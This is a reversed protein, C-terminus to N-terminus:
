LPLIFNKFHQLYRVVKWGFIKSLRLATGGNYGVYNFGPALAKAKQEAQKSLNKYAPYFNFANDWFLRSLALRALPDNTKALLHNAKLQTAQLIKKCSEYTKQASWTNVNKFKRYYSAAKPAYKIGNSVLVIRCFFEGDDDVTLEENWIGAKDIIELPCLWAHMGIMGGYGPGILGGGYLKILFDASDDSGETYWEEVIPRTYPYEGDFFHITACLGIYGPNNVLFNMQEEIKNASILDDADLFQIYDGSAEALGKNRAASAGKKTQSFVKVADSEFKKAITLSDDTSGDDVIIIEKNPWTQQLASNITENIFAAANYVPIIISVLPKDM